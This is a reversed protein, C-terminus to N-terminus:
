VNPNLSAPLLGATIMPIFSRGFYLRKEAGVVERTGGWKKVNLIEVM